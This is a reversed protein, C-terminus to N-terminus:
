RAHVRVERDRVSRDQVERYLDTYRVAVGADSFMKARSIGLAALEARQASDSLLDLLKQGFEAEGCIIGYRGNELVEEAGPNRTTVIATGSAMAEIYPIGFGEYQSPYCFVWAEALLAGLAADDLYRHEVVNPHPEAHDSVMHLQANPFRPLVTKCFTEFALAGRKRGGWTGIFVLLPTAAKPRPVFRNLNVGNGILEDCGYLKQTDLGIAVSCTALRVSLRELPYVLYQILKRKFSKATQAERLASGHMTRITPVSRKFWFWDDGHLHVIDYASFDYFNWLFPLVFLRFLQSRMAVPYLRKHHYLADAPKEDCSLVTVELSSDAALTNALRHVAAEVGGIKRSPSPLSTHFIAIRLVM